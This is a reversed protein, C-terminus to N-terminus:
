WTRLSGLAGSTSAATKPSVLRPKSPMAAGAPAAPTHANSGVVPITVTVRAALSVAVIELIVSAIASSPTAHSTAVTLVVSVIWTVLGPGPLSTVISREPPANAGPSVASASPTSESISNTTSRPEALGM